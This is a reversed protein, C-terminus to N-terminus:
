KPDAGIPNFYRLSLVRLPTSVTIDRLMQEVFQKTRGYPSLAAVGSNEDVSFDDGPEYIAASSSFLFRTVGKGILPDVFELTTAVNERYYHIPREVSEPVVILAACHM